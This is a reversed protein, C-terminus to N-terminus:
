RIALYAFSAIGAILYYIAFSTLSRARSFYRILFRVSFYAGVGSLLSGVLIQGRVGDGLPRPLGRAPPAGASTGHGGAPANAHRASTSRHCV